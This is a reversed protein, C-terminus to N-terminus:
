VIRVQWEIERSPNVFRRAGSDNMQGTFVVFAVAVQFENVAFGAQACQFVLEVFDGRVVFSMELLDFRGQGFAPDFASLWSRIAAVM